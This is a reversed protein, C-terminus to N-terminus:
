KSPRQVFLHYGLAFFFLNGDLAANQRGLRMWHYGVRLRLGHFTGKQVGQLNWDKSFLKLDATLATSFHIDSFYFESYYDPNEGNAPPAPSLSSFFAGVAPTIRLRQHDLLDRGVELGSTRFYTGDGKRWDFGNHEVRRGLAPQASVTTAEFHWGKRWLYFSATGGYLPRLSRDLPGTWDGQLYSVSFGYGRRRPTVLAPRISRVFDAFRSTPYRKLFADLRATWEKEDKNLRLLYDLQLVCFAKEEENLLAQQLRNFLDVRREYLTWDLTEFLSDTRPPIKYAQREREAADFRMVEDFMNGYAEEWFYLLWREDWVLGAYTNNELRALSDIWLAAAAPDDASFALRLEQRAAAIRGPLPQARGTQALSLIPLLSGALLFLLRKM